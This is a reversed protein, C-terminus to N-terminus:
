NLKWVPAVLRMVHAPHQAASFHKNIWVQSRYGSYAKCFSACSGPGLPM